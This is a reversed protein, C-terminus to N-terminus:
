IRRRRRLGQSLESGPRSSRDPSKEPPPWRRPLRSVLRSVDRWNQTLLPLHLFSCGRGENQPQSYRAALAAWSFLMLNLSLFRSSGAPRASLEKVFGANRGPIMVCGAATASSMLRKWSGESCRTRQLAFIGSCGPFRFLKPCYLLWGRTAFAFFSQVGFLRSRWM